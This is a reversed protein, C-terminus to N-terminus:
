KKSANPRPAKGQTKNWTSLALKEALSAKKSSNFERTDFTEQFSQQFAPSNGFTAPDTSQM